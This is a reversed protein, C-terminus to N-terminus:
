EPDLEPLQLLMERLPKLDSNITALLREQKIQYYGHVLVHRMGIIAAWPIHPNASRIGDTLKYAAEGIIEVCKVLGYFLIPDTILLETSYREKANLIKDIAEVMHLLRERDRLKERM